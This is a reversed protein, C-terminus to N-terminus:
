TTTWLEQRIDDRRHAGSLGGAWGALLELQAVSPLPRDDDLHAPSQSNILRGVSVQEVTVRSILHAGAATALVQQGPGVPDSIAAVLEVADALLQRQALGLLSVRDVAEDAPSIPRARLPVGAAGHQGIYQM